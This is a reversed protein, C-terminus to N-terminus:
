VDLVSQDFPKVDNMIHKLWAGMTNCEMLFAGQKIHFDRSGEALKAIARVDSEAYVKGYRKLFTCFWRENKDYLKKNGKDLWYATQFDYFADVVTKCVTIKVQEPM